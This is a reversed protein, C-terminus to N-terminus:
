SYTLLICLECVGNTSRDAAAPQPETTGGESTMDEGGIEKEEVGKRRGLCFNGATCPVVQVGIKEGEGRPEGQGKLQVQSKM